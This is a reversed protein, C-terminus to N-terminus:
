EYSFLSQINNAITHAVSLNNDAVTVVSRNAPVTLDINHFLKNYDITVHVESTTEKTVSFAQEPLMVMKINANTGIHIKFPAMASLGGMGSATTDISGEFNIFKYGLPQATTGFWMELRNQFNTDAAAPVVLNQTPTLGVNFRVSKYNGTPVDGLVYPETEKVKLLSSVPVDIFSGDAKELQIGSLYMQANDVSIMRGGTMTYMTGYEVENTDVNTHLHLLVTGYTTAPTNDNKDKCSNVTLLVGICSILLLSKITNQIKM